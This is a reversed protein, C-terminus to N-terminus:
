FIWEINNLKNIRYSEKNFYLDSTKMGCLIMVISYFPWFNHSFNPQQRWTPVFYTISLVFTTDTFKPFTSFFSRFIVEFFLKSFHSRFFVKFFFKSFVSQFIVEFFLKSFYYRFFRRRQEVKNKWYKSFYSYLPVLLHSFISLLHFKNHRWSVHSM